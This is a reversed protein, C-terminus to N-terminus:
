TWARSLPTVIAGRYPLLVVSGEKELALLAERVPSRSVKFQESIESETLRDGPCFQEELISRRIREALQFPTKSDGNFPERADQATDSETAM